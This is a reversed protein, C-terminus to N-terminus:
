PGAGAGSAAPFHKSMWAQWLPEERAAVAAAGDGYLFFGISVMTPGGCPFAGLSLVGPAPKDIRLLMFHKQEGESANEVIGALPPAGSPASLRQGAAAGALGLSSTLTEWAKSEPEVPMAMASITSCSQGRFHTMYLRLIRFFGPWGTETGELQNDWDDTRAFLSHVVRVVCTGGARAEITWETAVPPCGPGWGPDEAALRL